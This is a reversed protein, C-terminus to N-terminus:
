GIYRVKERASVLENYTGKPIKAYDDEFVVESQAKEFIDFFDNMTMQPGPRSGLAGSPVARPPSYADTEHPIPRGENDIVVKQEDNTSLDTVSKGESIAESRNSDICDAPAIDYLWSKSIYDKGHFYRWIRSMIKSWQEQPTISKMYAILDRVIKSKKEGYQTLYGEKEQELSELKVEAQQLAESELRKADKKTIKEPKQTETVAEM